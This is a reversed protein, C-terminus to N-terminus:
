ENRGIFYLGAYVKPDVLMGSKAKEELWRLILSLCKSTKIIEKETM